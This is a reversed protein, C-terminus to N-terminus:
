FDEDMPNTEGKPTLNSSTRSPDIMQELLIVRKSYKQLEKIRYRRERLAYIVGGGGFLLAVSNSITFSGLFNIGIDALTTKGALVYAVQWFCFGLFALTGYKILTKAISVTALARRNRQRFDKETRLQTVEMQLESKSMQAPNKLKNAM